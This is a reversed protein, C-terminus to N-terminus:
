HSLWKRAASFLDLFLRVHKPPTLVMFFGVPGLAANIVVFSPFLVWRVSSSLTRGRLTRWWWSRWKTLSTCLSTVWLMEAVPVFMDSVRWCREMLVCLFWRSGTEVTPHVEPHAARQLRGEQDTEGFESHLHAGGAAGPGDPRLGVGRNPQGDSRPPCILVVKPAPCRKAKVNKGM